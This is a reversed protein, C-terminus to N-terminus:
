KTTQKYWQRCPSYCATRPRRTPRNSTRFLYLSVLNFGPYLCFIDDGFRLHNSPIPFDETPLLLIPASSGLQGTMLSEAIWNVRSKQEILHM